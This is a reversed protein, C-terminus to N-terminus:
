CFILCLRVRDCVFAIIGLESRRESSLTHLCIGSFKPRGSQLLVCGDAGGLFDFSSVIRYRTISFSRFIAKCLPSNVKVGMAAAFEGRDIVGDNVQVRDTCFCVLM